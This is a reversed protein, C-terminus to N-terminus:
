FLNPPPHELLTEPARINAMMRPYDEKGRLILVRHLASPTCRLLEEKQADAGDAIMLNAQIKPESNSRDLSTPYPVALWRQYDLAARSAHLSGGILDSQIMVVGQAMGAQTRDRKVFQQPM